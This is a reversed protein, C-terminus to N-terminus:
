CSETALNQELRNIEHFCFHKSNAVNKQKVLGQGERGLHVKGLRMILLVFFYNIFLVFGWEESYIWFFVRIQFSVHVGINM